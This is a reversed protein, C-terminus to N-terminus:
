QGDAVGTLAVVIALGHLVGLVPHEAFGVLFEGVWEGFITAPAEVDMDVVELHSETAGM